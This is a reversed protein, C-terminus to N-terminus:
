AAPAYKVGCGYPQTVAPDVPRGEMVAMLANKFYPDAQQIDAQRTSRISDIGGMYLLNGDPGIIFLEPTTTAAYARSAQSMPDLLVATPRAGRAATLEKAQQGTVHGQMGEPSSAMSLWVVGKDAALGQLSQMNGSGYHKRVYPCDHNTWELVVIKGRFDTLKHVTGDQDPLEFDPATAGITPAALALRPLMPAAVTAMFTSTLITRRSIPSIM